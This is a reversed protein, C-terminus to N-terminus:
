PQADAGELPSGVAVLQARYEAAEADHGKDPEAAHWADYFGILRQLSARLQAPSATGKESLQRHLSLLVPEVEAFQGAALLYKVRSSEYGSRTGSPGPPLLDLAKQQTRAAPESDGTMHQALALTDLKDADTENTATVVRTALVLAEQPDRLEEAPCTLLEWAYDAVAKVSANPGTARTRYSELVDGAISRALDLRGTAKYAELLNAGARHTAPHQDGLVLRRNEYADEFLSAAEELRGMRWYLVGLSNISNLTRPHQAGLVRRRVELAQEYLREAEDMRGQREYLTALSHMSMLTDPHEEGLVRRQTELTSVYSQEAEQLRGQRGYLMALNSESSLTRPHEAGLLRRRLAVVELSLSEAEDLRGANQYLAALNAMTLVTHPHEEGLVRRRKQLTELYLSEAEDIRGRDECLVALNNMALLTDPHEPGLLRRKLELTKAYMVEAEAFRGQDYYLSALNNMSGLTELHEDGLLRRRIQLAKILLPEALDFRGQLRYLHALNSVAVLTTSHEEGLDAQALSLAQKLHPEARQYEGLKRYTNGLTTRISAEILPADGFKGEVAQSAADLVERMLVDKGQEEPAVAALLDDNLFDNISQTMEVQRRAEDRARVAQVLGISTGVTGGILALTVIVAAILAGRNRRVFKRTRYGATPPGALVPEDRLHRRIDDALESATAYRRTRDKEMAKMTIWDLDGRLQRRLSAPDTRRRAAVPASEDGM